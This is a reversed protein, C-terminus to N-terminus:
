DIDEVIKNVIDTLTGDNKVDNSGDKNDTGSGCGAFMSMTM